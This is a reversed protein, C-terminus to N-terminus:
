SRTPRNLHDIDGRPAVFFLASAGFFANGPFIKFKKKKITDAGVTKPEYDTAASSLHSIPRQFDFWDAWPYMYILISVVVRPMRGVDYLVVYDSNGKGCM